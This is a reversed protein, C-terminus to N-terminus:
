DARESNAFKLAERANLVTVGLLHYNQKIADRLDHDNTVLVPRSILAARVIDRDEAPIDVGEPLDPLEGHEWGAKASNYLLQKVFDQAQQHRPPYERLKRLAQIYRELLRQHMFIKHCIRTISALLNAATPDPQDHEDVGNIGHYIINEDLLFTRRV